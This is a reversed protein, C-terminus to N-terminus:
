ASNGRVIKSAKCRDGVLLFLPASNNNSSGLQKIANSRNDPRGFAIRLGIVLGAKNPGRDLPIAVGPRLAALLSM